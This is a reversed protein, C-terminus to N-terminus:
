PRGRDVHSDHVDQARVVRQKRAAAVIMARTAVGNISQPVGGLVDFVTEIAANNPLAKSELRSLAEDLGGHRHVAKKPTRRGFPYHGLDYFKLLQNM